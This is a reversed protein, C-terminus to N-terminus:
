EVVMRDLLLEYSSTHIHSKLIKISYSKTHVRLRSNYTHQAPQLTDRWNPLIVSIYPTRISHGFPIPM